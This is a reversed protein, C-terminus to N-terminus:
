SSLINHIKANKQVQKKNGNKGMKKEKLPDKNRISILYLPDEKRLVVM